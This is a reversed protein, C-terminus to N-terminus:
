VTLRIYLDRPMGPRISRCAATRRLAAGPRAPRGPRNMVAPGAANPSHVHPGGRRQRHAAPGQAVRSAAAASGQAPWVARQEASRGDHTGLGPVADASHRPLM